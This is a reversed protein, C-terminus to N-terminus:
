SIIRFPFQALIEIKFCGAMCSYLFCSCCPHGSARTYEVSLEMPWSHFTFVHPVLFNLRVTTKIIIIIITIMMMESEPFYVVAPRNPDWEDLLRKLSRDQNRIGRLAYHIL